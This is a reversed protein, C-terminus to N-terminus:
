SCKSNEYLGGDYANNRRVTKVCLFFLMFYYYTSKSYYSVAGYDSVLLAIVLILCLLATKDKSNRYRFLGKIIYFYMSYYVLFGIIGGNVLLEIYNNHLYADFGNLSSNIIRANGMGIGIIPKELFQHWGIEIMRSRLLASSDVKGEGTILAFLGSMRNNLGAFMQLRSLLYVAIIVVGFSLIAKGCKVFINKKDNNRTVFLLGIGIVSIVLAKRSGSAAIIFVAPVLLINWVSLGEYLMYYITIVIALALIMGLSNINTFGVDLRGEHQIAYLVSNWGLTIISYGMVGYCGWMVSKLLPEVSNQKQYYTYVLSFCLLIEIITIGKETAYRENLAWLRSVLSFLAFCLVFLHYPEIRVEVKGQRLSASLLFILISTGLIYYVGTASSELIYILSFQIATLIWIIKDTLGKRSRNSLEM